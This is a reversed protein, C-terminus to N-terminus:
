SHDFVAGSRQRGGRLVGEDKCESISYIKCKIPTFGPISAQHHNEDKDFMSTLDLIKVADDIQGEDQIKQSDRLSLAELFAAKADGGSSASPFSRSRALAGSRGNLVEEILDQGKTPEIHKVDAHTVQEDKAPKLLDLILAKTDKMM